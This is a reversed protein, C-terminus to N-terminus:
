VNDLRKLISFKLNLFPYNAFFRHFTTYKQANEITGECVWGHFLRGFGISQKM